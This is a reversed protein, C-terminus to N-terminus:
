IFSSIESKEKGMIEKNLYKTTRMKYFVVSDKDKEIIEKLDAKLEELKAKTIEGEFVSNQIWNLYKRCTKLVKAVRDEEIDYVLILYM